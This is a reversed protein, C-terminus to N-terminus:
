TGTYIQKRVTTNHIYLMYRYTSLEIQWRHIKDNKTRLAKHKDFIYSLTKQDKVLIFYNGKLYHSCERTAEIIVNAEKEVLFHNLEAPNLIRSWFAIPKDGQNLM